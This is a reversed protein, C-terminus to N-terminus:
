FTRMVKQNGDMYVVRLTEANLMGKLRRKKEESVNALAAKASSFALDRAASAGGCSGCGAKSSNHRSLGALFPFEALYQQNAAMSALLGNEIVLMRKATPM